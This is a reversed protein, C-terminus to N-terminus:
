SAGNLFPAAGVILKYNPRGNIFPAAGVILMNKAGNIYLRHQM